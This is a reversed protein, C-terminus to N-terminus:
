AAPVAAVPSSIALRRPRCGYATVLAIGASILLAVQVSAVDALFGDLAAAFPRAGLFGVMWLAMIRGRLDAPSRQQLQTSIATFAVMMGIGSLGLAALAIGPTTALGALALGIGMTALGSGILRNLGFLRTASTFLAFGLASGIGFASTLWGVLHTGGDLDDALAPALTIAPETAFGVVGVGVLLLLLTPDV